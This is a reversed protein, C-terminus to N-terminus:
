QRENGEYYFKLKREMDHAMGTLAITDFIDEVSRRQSKAVACVRKYLGSDKDIVVEITQKHYEPM